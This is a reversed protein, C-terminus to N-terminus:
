RGHKKRRWNWPPTPYPDSWLGVRRAVAEREASEYHLADDRMQSKAYQRYWWALGASIQDHGADVTRPCTPTLCNTSSVMVKGVIRQYRDRKKWIVDVTKGFVLNSLNQKSRQGFPQKKEPADIGAIRITYQHLQSDLVKITDGDSVGVVRGTLTDAWLTGASLLAALGLGFFKLQNGAM